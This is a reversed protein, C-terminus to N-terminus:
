PTLRRDKKSMPRVFYPAPKALWELFEKKLRELAQKIVDRERRTSSVTKPAATILNGGTEVSWANTTNTGPTLIDLNPIVVVGCMWPLCHINMGAFQPPGWNITPIQFRLPFKTQMDTVFKPYFDRGLLADTPRAGSDEVIRMQEWLLDFLNILNVESRHMEIRCPEELPDYKLRDRYVWPIVLTRSHPENM